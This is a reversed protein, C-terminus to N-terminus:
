VMLAGYSGIPSMLNERHTIAQTVGFLSDVSVPVALMLICNQVDFCVLKAFNYVM